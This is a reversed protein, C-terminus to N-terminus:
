AIRQSLSTGHASLFRGIGDDCSPPLFGLQKQARASSLSIDPCRKALLGADMLKGRGISHTPVSMQRAMKEGFEYKSVRDKGGIHFVGQCSRDIM